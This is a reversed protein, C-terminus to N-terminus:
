SGLFPRSEFGSKAVHFKIDSLHGDISILLDNRTTDLLRMTELTSQMVNVQTSTATSVGGFSQSGSQNPSNARREQEAIADQPHLSGGPVEQGLYNYAKDAEAALEADTLGSLDRPKSLLGHIAGGISLAGAAVQGWAGLKDLSGLLKTALPSSTESNGFGLGGLGARVNFVGSFIGDNRLGFAALSAQMNQLSNGFKDEMAMPGSEFAEQLDTKLEGMGDPKFTFDANLIEDWQKVLEQGEKMANPDIRMEPMKFESSPNMDHMKRFPVRTMNQQANRIRADVTSGNPAGATTAKGGGNGGGGVMAHLMPGVIPVAMTISQILPWMERLKILAPTLADNTFSTFAPILGQAMEMKLGKIAEDMDLVADEFAASDNALDTSFEVGLERAREQLEKIGKSGESLLPLLTVGARGFIEQALAAQRTSNEMQGLTDALEFILRDQSKLEGTADKVDIGLSRFSEAAKGTGNSADVANRALRRLGIELEQISTGSRQAAFAMTSLTETALGTRLSMKQYSDGLGAVEKALAVTATLVAVVAVGVAAYAAKASTAFESISQRMGKSEKKVTDSSGKVDRKFKDTGKMELLVQLRDSLTIAFVFLFIWQLDNTPLNHFM